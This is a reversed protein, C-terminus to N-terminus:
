VHHAEMIAKGTESLAAGGNVRRICFLDEAIRFGQRVRPATYTPRPLREAVLLLRGEEPRYKFTSVGQNALKRTAVRLHRYIVWELLMEQLFSSTKESSRSGVRDWWRRLHVEHNSAMEVATPIPAFPHGDAAGRDTALRGLVRVALAPIAEIDCDQVAAALRDALARTSMPTWPDAGPAIASDREAGLWGAVDVSLAPLSPLTDDGPIAAMARDAIVKVMEVPSLYVRDVEQLVAYFLCELSYNLLDNRQYAGWSQAADSLLPPISWAKGDPLHRAMCSWRFKGAMDGDIVESERLFHLMLLL